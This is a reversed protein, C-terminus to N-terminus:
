FVLFAIIASIVVALTAGGVKLIRMDAASLVTPEAFTPAPYYAAFHNRLVQEPGRPMARRAELKEERIKKELKM